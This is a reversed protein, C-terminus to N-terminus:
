ARENPVLGTKGKVENEAPDILEVDEDSNNNSIGLPLFM